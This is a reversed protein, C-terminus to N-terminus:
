ARRRRLLALGSLGLLALSGPEPVDYTYTLTYSASTINLDGSADTDPTVSVNFSTDWVMDISGTGLFQAFETPHDTDNLTIDITPTTLWDVNISSNPAGGGGQGGGAGIISTPVGNLLYSGGGSISGGGGQPGLHLTGDIDFTAQFQVSVLTGLMPDFQDFTVTQPAAVDGSGAALGTFVNVPGVTDTQVQTDAMAAPAAAVAALLAFHPLTRPNM